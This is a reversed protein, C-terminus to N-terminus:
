IEVYKVICSVVSMVWLMSLAKWTAYNIVHLECAKTIFNKGLDVRMIRHLVDQIYAHRICTCHDSVSRNLGNLFKPWIYDNYITDLSCPGIICIKAYLEILQDERTKNWFIGNQDTARNLGMLGFMSLWMLNHHEM